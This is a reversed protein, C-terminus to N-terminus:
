FCTFCIFVISYVFLVYVCVSLYTCMKADVDANV